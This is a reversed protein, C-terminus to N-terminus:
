SKFHKRSKLFRQTKTANANANATSPCIQGLSARFWNGRNLKSCLALQNRPHVYGIAFFTNFVFLFIAAVIPPGNGGINYQAMYNMGALIAMSGAQGAAGFLMLQRRGFKEITYVAIWSAM